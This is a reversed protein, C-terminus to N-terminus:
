ASATVATAGIRPGVQRARIAHFYRFPDDIDRVNARFQEETLGEIMILGDWRLRLRIPEDPLNAGVTEPPPLKGAASDPSGFANDAPSYLDAPAAAQFQERTGPLPGCVTLVNKDRLPVLSEELAIWEADSLMHQAGWDHLHQVYYLFRVEHSDAGLVEKGFRIIEPVESANERFAMTILHLKPRRPAAKLLSTLKKLNESFVEYRAGKRLRGFVEDRMSDFSVRISHVESAALREITDDTFRKSLNTTFSIRDRLPRDISEIYDLFRPHLTPEHLCSMWFHGPPVLPLLRASNAFVEDPMQKVGRINTYDVVCFPCRLNCNNVIDGAVLGLVQPPKITLPGNQLSYGTGRIRASVVGGRAAGVSVPVAFGHRGEGV